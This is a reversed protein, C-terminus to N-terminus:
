SRVSPPGSMVPLFPRRTRVVVCLAISSPLKCEPAYKLDSRYMYGTGRLVHAPPHALRRRPM